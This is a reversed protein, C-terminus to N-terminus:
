TDLSNNIEIMNHDYDYFFAQLVGNFEEIDGVFKIKSDLLHKVVIHFNFKSMSLAFHPQATEDLLHAPPLIFNECQMLHLECNGIKYWIGKIFYEPREIEELQLIDGYFKRAQDLNKIFIAIHNIKISSNM